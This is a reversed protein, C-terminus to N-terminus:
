LMGCVVLYKKTLFSTVGHKKSITRGYVDTPTKINLFYAKKLYDIIKPEITKGAITYKNDEFPEEYTKTIACWTKFPSNWRDLGLVSAFRTGTIRKPRKPIDVKIQNTKLWDM